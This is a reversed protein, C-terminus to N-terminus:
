PRDKRLQRRRRLGRVSPVKAQIHVARCTQVQLHEAKHRRGHLSQERPLNKRYNGGSPRQHGSIRRYFYVRVKGPLFGARRPKGTNGPLLARHRRFRGTKKKKKVARFIEHYERVLGGLYAAFPATRNMEEVQADLPRCFIEERLNKAAERAEKLCASVSDKVEAYIEKEEKKPTIRPLGILGLKEGFGEFDRTKGYELAAEIFITQGERVKDALRDLGEDELIEAAKRSNEGAKTLVEAAHDWIYEMLPSKRFEDCSLGLEGIKEDLWKWPYPMAMVGDYVSLIMERVGNMNRGSSYRDLFDHFEPSGEEFRRELLEDMADERLIAGRAEDCISFGPELDTLYFYKRIVNLAFSHFTSISAQPLLALQRRAYAAKTRDENQEAYLAQRIKEKMEAAAANTFTVILMRDVPVRDEVILRRIREVLVATKGSGAAAAVLINKQRNEIAELQRETWNM